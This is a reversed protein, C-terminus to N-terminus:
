AAGNLVSAWRGRQRTITAGSIGLDRFPSSRMENPTPSIYWWPIPSPSEPAAKWRERRSVIEVSRTPALSVEMLGVGVTGLSGSMGLRSIPELSGTLIQNKSLIAKAVNM